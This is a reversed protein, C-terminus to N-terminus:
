LSLPFVGWRSQSAIRSSGDYRANLEVLYRDKFGYNLRFFGSVLGWEQSSGSNTQVSSNGANLEHLPFDYDQRYGQLVDYRYSELSYGAMASLSHDKNSSLWDYKLYTYLNVYTSYEM